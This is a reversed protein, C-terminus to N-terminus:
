VRIRAKRTRNDKLSVIVMCVSLPGACNDRVLANRYRMLRVLEFPVFKYTLRKTKGAEVCYYM